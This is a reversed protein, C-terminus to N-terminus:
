ERRKAVFRGDGGEGEAGVPFPDGSSAVVMFGEYPIGLGAFTACREFVLSAYSRNGEAGITLLQNSRARIPGGPDPTGGGALLNADREMM